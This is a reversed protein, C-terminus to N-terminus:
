YINSLHKCGKFGVAECLLGWYYLFVPHSKHPAHCLMNNCYLCLLQKSIQTKLRKKIKSESDKHLLFSSCLLHCWVPQSLGTFYGVGSGAIQGDFQPDMCTLLHFGDESTSTAIATMVHCAYTWITSSLLATVCASGPDPRPKLPHLRHCSGSPLCGTTNIKLPSLDARQCRMLGVTQACQRGWQSAVHSCQLSAM